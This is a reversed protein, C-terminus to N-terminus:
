GAHRENAGPRIGTNKLRRLSWISTLLGLVIGAIGLFLLPLYWFLLSQDPDGWRMIIAGHLYMVTLTLGALFVLIGSLVVIILIFKLLKM